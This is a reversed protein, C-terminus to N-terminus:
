YPIAGKRDAFAKVPFAYKRGALNNTIVFPADSFAQDYIKLNYVSSEHRNLINPVGRTGCKRGSLHENAVSDFVNSM